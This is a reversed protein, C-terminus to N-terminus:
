LCIHMDSMLTMDNMAIDIEIFMNAKTRQDVAALVNVQVKLFNPM